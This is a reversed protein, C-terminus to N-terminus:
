SLTGPRRIVVCRIMSGKDSSWVPYNVKEVLPHDRLEKPPHPPVPIGMEGCARAMEPWNVAVKEPDHRHDPFATGANDLIYHVLTDLAESADPSLVPEPIRFGFGTLLDRAFAGAPDRANALRILRTFEELKHLVADPGLGSFRSFFDQPKTDGMAEIILDEAWARIKKARESISLFGLMFVGRKTWLTMHPTNSGALGGKPVSQPVPVAIWHRGELLEDAHRMKVNRLAQPTCDFGAAAERTTILWGHEPDPIVFLEIGVFIRLETQM